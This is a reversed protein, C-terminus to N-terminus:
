EGIKRIVFGKPWKIPVKDNSLTFIVLPVPM